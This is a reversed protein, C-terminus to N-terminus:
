ATETRRNSRPKSRLNMLVADGHCGLVTGDHHGQQRAIFFLIVVFPSLRQESCAPTFDSVHDFDDFLRLWGPSKNFRFQGTLSNVMQILIQLTDLDVDASLSNEVM